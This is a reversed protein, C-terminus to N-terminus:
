NRLTEFKRKILSEKLVSVSMSLEPRLITLLVGSLILITGAAQLLTPRENLMLWAVTTAVIPTACTYISTRGGGVKQVSRNWLVYGVVLTLIATYALGVWASATVQHWPIRVLSPASLIVLGPTGVLITLVTVRLSSIESSLSRVGLTYISWCIVSGLILLNGKFAQQGLSLGHASVIATVGAFALVIGVTMRRSTRELGLLLGFDTVMAPTTAIILACNSASTMSLGLIFLVQYVTNGIVGL